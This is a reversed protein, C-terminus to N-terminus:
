SKILEKDYSIYFRWTSYPMYIWTKMRGERDNSCDSFKIDKIQEFSIPWSENNRELHLTVMNYIPSIDYGTIKYNDQESEYGVRKNTIGIEINGHKSNKSAECLQELYHYYPELAEKHELQSLNEQKKQEKEEYYKNIIKNLLRAIANHDNKADELLKEYASSRIKVNRDRDVWLKKLGNMIEISVKEEEPEDPEMGMLYYLSVDYYNSIKMLMDASPERVGSEWSCYTPYKILLQKAAEKRNIGKLERAKTMQQGIIVKQEAM